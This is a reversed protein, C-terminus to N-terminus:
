KAVWGTNGTGSEKVYFGTGAGGGTRLYISGPGATVAGEPSASGGSITTTTGVGSIVLPRATGTGGAEVALYAVNTDWKLAVREYNTIVNNRTAYVELGADVNSAPNVYLQDYGFIGLRHSATRMLALDGTHNTDSDFAISGSSLCRFSFDSFDFRYSAMSIKLDNCSINMTGSPGTLTGDYGVKFLNANSANKVQFYGDTGSGTKAGLKITAPGATRNTGTASPIIVSWSGTNGDTTTGVQDIIDGSAGSTSGGAGTYRGIHGPTSTAGGSGSHFEIHGAGTFDGAGTASGSYFSLIGGDHDGSAGDTATLIIGNGGAAGNIQFNSNTPGTVVGNYAVNFLTTGGVTCVNFFGDPSGGDGAGVHLTFAGGTGFSGSAADSAYAVFGAGNGGYGGEVKFSAGYSGTDDTQGQLFLYAGDTGNAAAKLTLGDPASGTIQYQGSAFTLDTAAAPDFSGGGGGGAAWKAKKLTADWILVQGDTPLVESVSPLHKQDIAKKAAGVDQAVAQTGLVLILVLISTLRVM